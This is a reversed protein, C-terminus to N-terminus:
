VKRIEIINEIGRPSPWTAELQEDTVGESKLAELADEYTDYDPYNSEEGKYYIRYGENHLVAVFLEDEDGDEDVAMVKYFNYETATESNGFEGTDLVDKVETVEMEVGGLSEVTGGVEPTEDQVIYVRDYYSDSYSSNYIKAKIIM